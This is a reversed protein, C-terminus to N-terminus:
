WGYHEAGVTGYTPMGLYTASPDIDHFIYEVEGPRQHQVQPHPHQQGHQGAVPGQNGYFSSTSPMTVYRGNSAYMETSKLMVDTGFPSSVDM